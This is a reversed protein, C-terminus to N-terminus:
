KGLLMDSYSHHIMDAEEIGFAKVYFDCQEKLQEVTLSPDSVNGAEIEVFSGLAPVEDIYFRL